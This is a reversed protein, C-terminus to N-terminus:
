KLRLLKLGGPFSDEPGRIEQGLIFLQNAANKAVAPAVNMAALGDRLRDVAAHFRYSPTGSSQLVDLIAASVAQVQAPSSPKGFLDRALETAFDLTAKRSPQADKEALALLDDTVRNAIAALPAASNSLASLDADLKATSQAGLGASLLLFCIARNM